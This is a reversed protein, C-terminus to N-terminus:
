KGKRLTHQFNSIQINVMKLIGHFSNLFYLSKAWKVKRKGKQATQQNRGAGKEGGSTRRLGSTEFVRLRERPSIYFRAGCGIQGISKDCEGGERV